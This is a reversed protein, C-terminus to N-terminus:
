PELTQIQHNARERIPASLLLEPPIGVGGVLAATAQREARFREGADPAWTTLWLLLVLSVLPLCSGSRLRSCTNMVNHQMTLMPCSDLNQGAEGRKEMDVRRLTLMVLTATLLLAKLTSDGSLVAESWVSYCVMFAGRRAFGPFLLLAAGLLQVAAILVVFARAVGVHWGSAAAMYSAQQLRNAILHCAGQVVVVLLVATGAWSWVTRLTSNSVYMSELRAGRGGM